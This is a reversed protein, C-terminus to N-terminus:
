NSLLFLLDEETLQSSEWDGELLANSLSSKASKLKMMKEEISEAVIYKKAIVANKRGIRHARHIAQNEVAENWWPDFLFVTDAATLNLGVGGAKLSILFVSKQAEEQFQTVIAERNTTSGDLYLYAIEEQQLRKGILQLMTTFQSYVLAKRGEELLTQLEAILSELKSSPAEEQQVLLPHCCIQRLRLIGELVEMRHSSIGETAVKKLLGNRLGSLFQEYVRRQDSDMEIWLTQDIREPLDPAVEEKRRRLIFPQIKKKILQLHRADAQGAQLSKM